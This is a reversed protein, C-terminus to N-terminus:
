TVCQLNYSKSIEINLAINLPLKRLLQEFTVYAEHIFEGRTNGKWGRSNYDFTHKIRAEFAQSEFSDSASVSLTRVKRSLPKKFYETEECPPACLHQDSQESNIQM